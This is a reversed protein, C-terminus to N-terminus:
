RIGYREIEGQLNIVEVYLPNGNGFNSNDIMSKAEAATLVTKKNVKTIIFGKKVGYYSLNKNSNEMIRAGGKLDYKKKEESTLDKLSIGLVRSIYTSKKNLLIKEKVLEGDREVTVDVFEGPRKSTLQGKLESFKSIKIDNISKIIDGSKLQSKKEGDEYFVDGVKVGEETYRMDVSIGLIAEQVAGFELLDNVIKKAINSPVAFSYGIFSGTKSSIATNIGVLEGRTNVLAGGSNGPNVAADTQIFSEINNGNGELDRGKASVIGATVTSTLNYPNGVALVWEGIKITDSNAFPTYPLEEEVDIKLLAIDNTKDAGILEAKYKKRNNLTIQLDSSGEIVHNNTVIYGDPSIIVGSGTGIQEYKRTGNGNGNGFFIDLPNSQTRISTNKVHVVSHVTKEAAVTFDIVDASIGSSNTNFSPNYSAQVAQMSNLSSKNVKLTDAFFMKYGGLTIAGGLVAIGLLSFFKKM